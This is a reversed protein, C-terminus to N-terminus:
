NNIYLNGQSDVYNDGASSTLINHAKKQETALYIDMWDDLYTDGIGTRLIEIVARSGEQWEVATKNATDTFWLLRVIPEPIRVIQGNSSVSAVNRYLVEGPNISVGSLPEVTFIPYERAISIQQRAVEKNDIKIVIVYDAKEIVRLDFVIKTASISIIEPASDILTLTQNNNRYLEVALVNDLLHKGGRTTLMNITREYSNADLASARTGAELGNAIKYDYMLLKDLFPNYIIVPDVDISVEYTDEAKDITSLILSDTKVPINIGLRTDPIVAEFHIEVDEGVPTNRQITIAGRYEGTQAIEYLGNWSSLTAIDVGNAFWKMEAMVSNANHTLWSGDAADAYIQPYIVLPTIARDPNFSNEAGDYVQSAPSLPTLVRLTEATTLPQYERRIRKRNEIIM